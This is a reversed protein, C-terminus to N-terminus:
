DARTSKKKSEERLRENEARLAAFQQQASADRQQLAAVREEAAEARQRWVKRSAELDRNRIRASKLRKKRESAKAKWGDRSTVLKPILIRTPTRFTSRTATAGDM